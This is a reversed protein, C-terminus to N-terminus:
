QTPQWPFLVPSLILHYHTVLTQFLPEKLHPLLKVPTLLAMNQMNTASCTSCYNLVQNAQLKLSLQLCLLHAYYTPISSDLTIQRDRNFTGLSLVRSLLSGTLLFVVLCTNGNWPWDGNWVMALRGGMGHGTEMGHNNWGRTERLARYGAGQKTRELSLSTLSHYLDFGVWRSAM